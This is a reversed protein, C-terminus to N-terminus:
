FEFDMIWIVLFIFPINTREWFFFRKKLLPPFFILFSLPKFWKIIFFYIKYKNNIM